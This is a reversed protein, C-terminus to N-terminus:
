EASYTFNAEVLETESSPNILVLHYKEPEPITSKLLVDIDGSSAPGNSFVADSGRGRVFDSFQRQDLVLVDVNGAQSHDALFARFTGKVRPSSTQPAVTFEAQRYSKIPIAGRLLRVPGRNAYRTVHDFALLPGRPLSKEAPQPEPEAPEGGAVSEGEGAQARALVGVVQIKAAAIAPDKALDPDILPVPKTKAALYQQKQWISKWNSIAGLALLGAAVLFFFGTLLGYSRGMYGRM